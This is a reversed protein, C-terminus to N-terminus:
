KLRFSYPIAMWARVPITRQTGAQFRCKKAADAAAKNLIPNIGQMIVTKEVLGNKGVLVKVIVVGELQSMRAIEPYDPKAFFKLVPKSSVPSFKDLHDECGPNPVVPFPNFEFTNPLDIDDDGDGEVPEIERVIAPPKVQPQAPLELEEIIEFNELEFFKDRLVYPKPQYAPMLWVGLATLVLAALLSWRLVKQYQSKFLDNASLVPEATRIM